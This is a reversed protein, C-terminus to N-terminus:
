TPSRRSADALTRKEPLAAMGLAAVTSSSKASVM